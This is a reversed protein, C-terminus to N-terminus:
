QEKLLQLVADRLRGIDDQTNYIAYSLRVYAGISGGFNGIAAEVGFRSRLVSRVGAGPIGPVDQVKLSHPLRVMAQTAVLEEDVALWEDSTGWAVALERGAELVRRHCHQSSTE